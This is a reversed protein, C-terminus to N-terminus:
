VGASIAASDFFALWKKLFTPRAFLRDIVQDLVRRVCLRDASIGDIAVDHHRALRGGVLDSHQLNKTASERSDTFANNSRM